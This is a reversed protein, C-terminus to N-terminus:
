PQVGTVIDDPGLVGLEHALKLLDIDHRFPAASPSVALTYRGAGNANGLFLGQRRLAFEVRNELATRSLYVRTAGSQGNGAAVCQDAQKLTRENM